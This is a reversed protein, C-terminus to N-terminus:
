RQQRIGNIRQTCESEEVDWQSVSLHKINLILTALSSINYLTQKIM